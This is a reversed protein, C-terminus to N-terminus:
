IVKKSLLYSYSAAMAFARRRIQPYSVRSGCTEIRLYGAALSGYAAPMPSCAPRISCASANRPVDRMRSDDDDSKSKQEVARTGAPVSLDAKDLTFNLNGISYVRKLEFNWAGKLAQKRIPAAAYFLMRDRFANQRVNQIEVIIHEGTSTM